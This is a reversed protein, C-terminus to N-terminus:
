TFRWLFDAALEAPFIKLIPFPKGAVGPGVQALHADCFPSDVSGRYVGKPLDDCPPAQGASKRLIM